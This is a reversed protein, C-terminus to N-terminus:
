TVLNCCLFTRYGTTFRRNSHSVTWDSDTFEEVSLHGNVGSFLGCGPHGKLYRVIRLAAEIHTSRPASMFQCIVSVAFFINPRKIILHNLKGM